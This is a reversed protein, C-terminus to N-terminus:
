VGCNRSFLADHLSIITSVVAHRNHRIEASIEFNELNDQHIFNEFNEDFKEM